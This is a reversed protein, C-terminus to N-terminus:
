VELDWWADAEIGLQLKVGVTTAVNIHAHKWQSPIFLADGSKTECELPAFDQALSPLMERFWVAPAPRRASHTGTPGVFAAPSPPYLFWHSDGFVTAGLAASHATFFHGSGPPGMTFIARKLRHTRTSSSRSSRALAALAM